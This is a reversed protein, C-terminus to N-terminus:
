PAVQAPWTPASGDGASGSRTSGAPTSADEAPMSRSARHWLDALSAGLPAQVVRWGSRHLLTVAADLDAAGATAAHSSARANWTHTEILVAVAGTTGHRVRGLWQADEPELRGLVAVLLGDHGGRGLVSASARLDRNDSPRVVALAELLMGEFDGLGFDGDRGASSVSAGTDTVLRVDYGSRALHLGVSAAASVAWEFSAGPGEGRHARGRTDLLVTSFSQWPQEERRVMLEGYRATSRWHVRRLDDGHRYERTAVDDEGAAAISRARSEGTGSWEGGLPVAPLREVPPTVILADTASFSRALEVLGFPDTLRLSLPGLSFHGRVDSRVRYEIERRGRPEVRDLVFRPRAGLVYPVRDNVLMLGTPLRSVNDLRVVVRASVGASVRGPEVRRTCALRYRTRGAVVLSVLPLATMLVGVRFVDPQGLVLAVGMASVGAALFSRGRTTLGALAARM